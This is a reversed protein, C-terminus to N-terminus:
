KPSHFIDVAPLPHPDNRYSEDDEMSFETICNPNHGIMRLWETSISKAGERDLTWDGFTVPWLYAIMRSVHHFEGMINNVYKCLVGSLMLDPLVEYEMMETDLKMVVKPLINHRTSLSEPIQREAVERMTWDGLRIVPVHEPRCEKRCSSKKTTFGLEDGTHYFTLNGDADGVGAHIPLYRWGLSAYARQIEAHRAIHSPNPEFSFVCIHNNDRESEPGLAERFFKRAIQAKPYLKPEYLYRVHLGVNSGVDLFVHTCGDALKPAAKPVVRLSDDLAASDLVGMFMFRDFAIIVVLLAVVIRIKPTNSACFNLNQEHPRHSM